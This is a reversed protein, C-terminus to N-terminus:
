PFFKALSDRLDIRGREQLQLLAVMTFDKTNSGIQVVTSPDFARREERNALGYGKRLITAGDKEIRILGSFGKAELSRLASDLRAAIPDTSQCPAATALLQVALFVLASSRM